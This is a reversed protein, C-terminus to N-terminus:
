LVRLVPLRGLAGVTRVGGESGCPYVEELTEISALPSVDTLHRCHQLMIKVLSRSGSLAELEEDTIATYELDLVRLVPLRGLAGVTRVGGESGSTNVEELTEISALPSVDTLRRCHQLVIKVLSRS